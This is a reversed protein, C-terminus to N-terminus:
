STFLLPPPPRTVLFLTFFFLTGACIDSISIHQSRYLNIKNYSINIPNNWDDRFLDYKNIFYRVNEGILEIRKVNILVRRSQFKILEIIM